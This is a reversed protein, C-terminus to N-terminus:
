GRQRGEVPPGAATSTLRVAAIAETRVYHRPRPIRPHGRRHSEVGTAQCLHEAPPHARNGRFHWNLRAIQANTHGAAVLGLM